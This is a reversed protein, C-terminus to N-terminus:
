KHNKYWAILSERLPEYWQSTIYYNVGNVAVSKAYYRHKEEADDPNRSLSLIPYYVGPFIIQSYEKTKLKEIEESHLKGALLLEKIKLNYM